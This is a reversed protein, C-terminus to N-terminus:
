RAPHRRAAKIASRASVARRDDCNADGRLNCIGAKHRARPVRDYTARNYIGAVGGHGSFHNLVAGDEVLADGLEEGVKCEGAAIATVAAQQPREAAHLQEDEVVPVECGEVGCGAVVEKFDEFLTITASRCDDGALDRHVFPVLQDTVGGIGVRNQVADDVVRTADVEGAM